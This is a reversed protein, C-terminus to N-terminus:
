HVGNMKLAAPSDDDRIQAPWPQGDRGLWGHGKCTECPDWGSDEPHREWGHACRAPCLQMEALDQAMLTSEERLRKGYDEMAKRINDFDQAEELSLEMLEPIRYPPPAQSEIWARAQDVPAIYAEQNALDLILRHTPVTDSSGYCWSDMGYHALDVAVPGRLWPQAVIWNAGVFTSAGDSWALEDGAPEWWLALWRAPGDYGIARHLNRPISCLVHVDPCAERITVTPANM